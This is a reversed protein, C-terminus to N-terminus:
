LLGYVYMSLLNRPYAYIKKKYLENGSIPSEPVARIKAARERDRRAATVRTPVVPHWLLQARPIRVNLELLGDVVEEAQNM